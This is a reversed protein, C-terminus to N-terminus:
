SLRNLIKLVIYNIMYNQVHKSSHIYNVTMAVESCIDNGYKYMKIISLFGNM